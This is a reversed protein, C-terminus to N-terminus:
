GLSKKRFCVVYVVVAVAIWAAGIYSAQRVKEDLYIGVMGALQGAIFVLPALPYLPVRFPQEGAGVSAADNGVGTGAAEGAWRQRLVFLAAATLIFFVADIFVAGTLIKDIGDPGAAGLLVLAGIALLLIAPVPTGFRPSLRGFVKFFRGDHAMGYILRPGSLLQSNLVGFASVGVAAAVLRKGIEPFSKAVADAALTNSAAVGEVGLLRLYAWNALLYVAIVLSVGLIISRPINRRPQRIEGSIWLAQQWGGYAFFASVLATMIGKVPSMREDAAGVGTADAGASEAPGSALAAIATIALLTFVKAYVTANQIRSGWRVGVINAAALAVILLGAIGLLRYGEPAGGGAAEGLHKACVVAIIGIAGAQTGTANCFVFLFAPLPGWADRLVEYQAGSSHYRGGLEAFVLAGCMAIVGGIAWALLLLGGDGVLAAMRSSNFFIGVGIIAGIVVCTADRLNLVRAPAALASPPAPAPDPM